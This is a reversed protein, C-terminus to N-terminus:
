IPADIGGFAACAVTQISASSKATETGLIKHADPAARKDLSRTKRARGFMLRQHPRM